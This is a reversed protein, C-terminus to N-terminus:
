PRRVAVGTGPVVRRHPDRYARGDFEDGTGALGHLAVVVPGPGGNDLYSLRTGDGRDIVHREFVPAM